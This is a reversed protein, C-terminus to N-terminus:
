EKRMEFQGDAGAYLTLGSGFLMGKIMQTRLANYVDISGNVREWYVQQMCKTQQWVLRNEAQERIVNVHDCPMGDLLRDGLAQFARSVDAASDVPHRQGFRYALQELDSRQAAEGKLLETVLFALRTEVVGIKQQLWGHINKLDIIEELPRVDMKGCAADVMDASVADWHNQEATELITQIWEEQFQIKRYLWDHIPGLYASM